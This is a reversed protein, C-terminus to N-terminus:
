TKASPVVSTTSDRTLILPEPTTKAAAIGERALEALKNHDPKGTATKPANPDRIIKVGM